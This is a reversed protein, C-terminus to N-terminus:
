VLMDSLKTGVSFTPVTCPVSFWNNDKLCVVNTHRCPYSDLSLDGQWGHRIFPTSLLEEREVATAQNLQDFFDNM